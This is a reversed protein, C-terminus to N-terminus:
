AVELLANHIHTAAIAAQGIAVTIQDLGSVVDGAAYAGARSTQQHNDVTICGTSTMEIACPAALSSQPTSGLEAYVTDWVVPSEPVAIKDGRRELRATAGPEVIHVDLHDTFQRLFQAKTEAHEPTVLLGVRKGGVEYGDCVPCYRLLGDRVAEDHAELDPSIDLSGTALLITRGIAWGEPTDVRFMQDSTRVASALSGGSRVNYAALQQRLLGLLESGPIGCPFGPLNRIQPILRARSAGSDLLLVSRRFRALYLAATMGAPGGGVIVCDYTGLDGHSM